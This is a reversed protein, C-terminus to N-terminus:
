PQQPPYSAPWSLEMEFKMSGIATEAGEGRTNLEIDWLSLGGQGFRAVREPDAPATRGVDPSFIFERYEGPASAGPLFHWGLIEVPSTGSWHNTLGALNQTRGRQVIHVSWGVFVNWNNQIPRLEFTLDPGFRRSFREGAVVEGQFVVTERKTSWDDPVNTQAVGTTSLFGQLGLIIPTILTWVRRM